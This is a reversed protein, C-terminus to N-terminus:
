VVWEMGASAKLSLETCSFLHLGAVCGLGETCEGQNKGAMERGCGWPSEERFSQTRAARIWHLGDTCLYCSCHKKPFVETQSEESGFDRGRFTRQTGGEVKSHREQSSWASPLIGPKRPCNRQTQLRM